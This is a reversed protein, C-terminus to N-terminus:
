NGITQRLLTSPQRNALTGLGKLSLQLYIGSNYSPERTQTVSTLTKGAALTLAWCCSDYKTGLYFTQGYHHSLNYSWSGLLRWHPSLKIASALGITHNRETFFQESESLRLLFRQFNYALRFIQEHHHFNLLVGANEVEHADLHYAFDGQLEFQKLFFTTQLLLPSIHNLHTYPGLTVRPKHLFIMGGLGLRAIEQDRYFHSLVSLNIQQADNVRDWGSFRNDRYLLDFTWPIHASDFRPILQQDHYPIWLGYVRYENQINRYYAYHTFELSATPIFQRHNPESSYQLHYDRLIFGVQPVLSINAHTFVHAVQPYLWLRQGHVQSSNQWFFHDYGGAVQIDYESWPQDWLFNIHPLQAYSESIKANALLQITQYHSFAMMAHLNQTDLSVDVNQLLQWNEINLDSQTFDKLYYDDSVTNIEIHSTLYPNLTTIHQWHLAGRSNGTSAIGPFERKFDAFKRDYPIFNAYLLGSYHPHLYRLQAGLGTGRSSYFQPYLTLDANPKLNLYFPQTINFGQQSHYSFIPVLFGTHRRKDTPFSLVPLYFIPMDRWTLKIKNARARGNKTDIVLDEAKLHWDIQLPSCTSYTVDHLIIKDKIQHASQAHGWASAYRYYSSKLHARKRALDIFASEASLMRGPQQIHIHGDLDIQTVQQQKTIYSARDARISQQFQEITVDGKLTSRGEGLQIQTEHARIRTQHTQTLRPEVFFGQCLCQACPQWDLAKAAKPDSPKAYLNTNLLLLLLIIKKM